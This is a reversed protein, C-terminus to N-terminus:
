RRGGRQEKVAGSADFEVNDRDTGQIVEVKPGEIRPAAYRIAPPKKKDKDYGILVSATAGDTDEDEGIMEADSRLALHIDGKTAALAVQEAEELTVELTVVPKKKAQDRAAKAAPDEESSNGQLTSGVALVRKGQLLVKSVAKAEIERDDPRIVVIVDVYNGPQIFAAVAQAQSIQVALARNGPAILANLGIGEGAQALRGRRVIENALIREKPTRGIVKELSDFTEGEVLVSPHVARVVVDETSLAVGMNLDRAAVVVNVLEQAQTTEEAQKQLGDVLQWVIATIVAAALLSFGLFVYARRRGGTQARQQM